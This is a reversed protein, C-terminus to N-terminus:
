VCVRSRLDHGRTERLETWSMATAAQQAVTARGSLMTRAIDMYVVSRLQTDRLEAAISFATCVDGSRAHAVKNLATAAEFM